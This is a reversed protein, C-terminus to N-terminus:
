YVKLDLKKFLNKSRICKKEYAPQIELHSVVFILNALPLSVSHFKEKLANWSICNWPCKM